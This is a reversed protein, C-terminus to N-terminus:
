RGLTTPLGKIQELIPDTEFLSAEDRALLYDRLVVPFYVVTDPSLGFRIRGGTFDRMRDRDTALHYREARQRANIGEETEWPNIGAVIEGHLPLLQVKPRLDRAVADLYREGPEVHLYALTLGHDYESHWELGATDPHPYGWGGGPSQTRAMFDNLAVITARLREDEPRHRLLYPLANAAYQVIYPKVFPNRYGEDDFQLYLDNGVAPKGSETFLLDEGQVEQFTAWLHDAKALYEPRGTYEYLKVFDTVCGIVRTYSLGAHQHQIGWQAAAEGAEAFRPDGTEEYALYFNSFGKHVYTEGRDYRVMYTGPGHPSGPRDRWGRGRRCVGYFEEKPGWYMGLNNTNEAWQLAIRRLRADGSRFWDEWVYQSHNFRVMSNYAPRRQQPAWSTMNGWDDGSVSMGELARVHKDVLERLLPSELSLPPGTRYVADYAEWSAHAHVPADLSAALQEVTGPCLVVESVRYQGEQIMLRGDEEMPTDEPQDLPETRGSRVRVAGGDGACELAGRNQRLALPNAVTVPTDGALTVPLLLQPNDTYTSDPDLALFHTAAPRLERLTAGPLTLEWGFDPTWRDGEGAHQLRHVLWLEGGRTVKVEVERRWREGPTRLRLWVMQPGDEIIEGTVPGTEGLEPGYPQLTGLPAGTASTLEVRDGRVTLSFPDTDIRLPEGPALMSPGAPPATLNPAYVGRCTEGAQLSVPVSLIVRRASGDPHSTVRRAQAAVTDAGIRVAAPPAEAILGPPIPLSMRAVTQVPLASPNTITFTVAETDAAASAPLLTTAFLLLVCM